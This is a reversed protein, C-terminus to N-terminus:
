CVAAACVCVSGLEYLFLSRSQVACLAWREVIRARDLLSLTEFEKREREYAKLRRRAAGVTGPPPTSAASVTPPPLTPSGPTPQPPSALMSSATGPSSLPPSPLPSSSLGSALTATIDEPPKPGLDVMSALTDLLKVWTPLGATVSVGAGLFLVLKEHRAFKALMNAHGLLPPSLPWQYEFLRRQAQVCCFLPFNQVLM